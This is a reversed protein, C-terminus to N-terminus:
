DEFFLVEGSSVDYLGGIIKIIRQENLEKIIRSKNLISQIDYTKFLGNM